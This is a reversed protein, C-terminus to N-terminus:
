FPTDNNKDITKIKKNIVKTKAELQILSLKDRKVRYGYGKGVKIKKLKKLPFFRNGTKSPLRYLEKDLWGFQFSKYDFGYKFNLVAM